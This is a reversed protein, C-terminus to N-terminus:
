REPGKPLRPPTHIAALVPQVAEILHGWIATVAADPTEANEGAFRGRRDPQGQILLIARWEQVPADRFSIRRVTIEFIGTKLCALDGGEWKWEPTSM